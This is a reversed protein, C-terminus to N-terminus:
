VVCLCVSCSLFLVVVGFAHVRVSKSFRMYPTLPKKPPKLDAMKEEKTAEPPFTIGAMNVPLGVQGPAIQIPLGTVQQMGDGMVPPMPSGM